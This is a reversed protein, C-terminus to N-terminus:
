VTWPAARGADLGYKDIAGAVVEPKIV